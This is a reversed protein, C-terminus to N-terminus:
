DSAMVELPKLRAARQGPVWCAVAAVALMIAVAAVLTM